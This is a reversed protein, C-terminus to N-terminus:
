PIIADLFDQIAKELDTMAKDVQAQTANEDTMIVQAAWMATGFANKADLPAQGPQNGQPTSNYLEMAEELKANLISKDVPIDYLKLLRIEDIYIICSATTNWALRFYTTFWPNPELDTFGLDEKLHLRIENWGNVFASRPLTCRVDRDPSSGCVWEFPATSDLLDVNEIYVWVSFHDYPRWDFYGVDPHLWSHFVLESLGALCTFRLSYGDTKLYKPDTNLSALANFIPFESISTIRFQHIAIPDDETVIESEFDDTAQQLAAAATNVEDETSYLYEAVPAADILVKQLAAHSHVPAQGNYIGRGTTSLLNDATAIATNLATKDPFDVMAERFIAIAMNLLDSLSNVQYQTSSPDDYISRAGELHSILISRALAEEEPLHGPLNGEPTNELLETGEEIASALATKDVPDPEVLTILRIEDIYISCPTSANWRFLIPPAMWRLQFDTIFLDERLDIVLENWGTTFSSHPKAWQIVASELLAPDEIYIWAALLDYSRWDSIWDPHEFMVMLDAYSSDITLKISTGETMLYLPNTNYAITGGSAQIESTYASDITFRHVGYPDDATVIQQEFEAVASELAAAAGDVETQTATRDEMVPRAAAAIPELAAHAHVPAQGMAIGKGINALLSEAYSLAESLLSKDAESVIAAQFDAMAQQLTQVANDVQAHTANEDALLAQAADIAAQLDAYAEPPAQTPRTGVPTSLMLEVADPVVNELESKDVPGTEELKLLRIEDVYIDYPAVKTQWKLHVFMIMNQLEDDSLGLDDRLNLRLENWGDAFGSGPLTIRVDDPGLRWQFAATSDLKDADEVYFWLAFTDYPRWDTIWDPHLLGFIFDASTDLLTFKISYEGAKNYLYSSEYVLSGGASPVFAGFYSYGIPFEHVDLPDNETVIANLFDTIAQLFMALVGNVEAQTTNEDNHVEIATVLASNLAGFAHVPVQGKYIGQEINELLEFAESIAVALATKDAPAVVAAQFDATAEQLAQVANGVQAQTANNDNLVAQAAAIAQQLATHAAEPAQGARTGIPTSQKLNVADQIANELDYKDAPATEELKLLRIEDIYIDYPVVTTRWTLGVFLDMNQLEADSLGLDDRLSLRIENWGDAFGSGPLTIRVDGIAISWQFAATSDLQDADEVYFWLAFTDYPRWDSIWFDPIWPGFMIHAPTDWATFKLSYNGAKNYQFSSEYAVESNGSPLFPRDSWYQDLSFEHVALPNDETVVANQVDAMAQLLAALVSDIEAQLANEDNCVEYATILATLLDSAAHVPVQGKYIGLEMNELLEVAEAIAAALATKDAPVVVAAQFDAAAELLAQLASDIQAQTANDEDLVAQAADIAQQLAAHAKEPAHGISTGVPTSQKLNVANQVASELESKDVPDIEEKTITIEISDSLNGSSVTITVKGEATEGVSFVASTGDTTLEGLYAPEASWVPNPVNMPKNSKDFGKVELNVSEGQKIAQAHASVVIRQLAPKSSRVCGSLAMVFVLVVVFATSKRSM